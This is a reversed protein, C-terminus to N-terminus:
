GEDRMPSLRMFGVSWNLRRATTVAPAAAALMAITGRCTKPPAPWAAGLLLEVNGAHSQVAHANAVDATACALLVHDVDHGEAVHVLVDQRTEGLFEGVGLVVGIEALHEFGLLVDVRHHSGRGVVQVGHDADHGHLHALVDVALLRQRVRDVLGALHALDGLLGLDGRLHAVLALRAFLGPQQGLQDPGARDARDALDM